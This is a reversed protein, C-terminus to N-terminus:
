MVAQREQGGIRRAGFREGLQEGGDRPPQRRRRLGRKALFELRAEGGNLLPQQCVDVGSGLLHENENM